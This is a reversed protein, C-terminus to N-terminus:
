LVNVFFFIVSFIDCVLCFFFMIIDLHVGNLKCTNKASFKEDNEKEDRSSAFHFHFLLVIAELVVILGSIVLQTILYVTFYPVKDSSKPMSDTIMTLFVAFTLFITMCFGMKEGSDIPVVFCCLNLVSLIVVPLLVSIVVYFSKRQLHIYFNLHEQTNRNVPDYYKDVRFSTNQIDWVENPQLYQLLLNSYEENFNLYESYSNINGFSLSCVHSDFPYSTVDIVCQSVSGLYKMYAVFGEAYVTVPDEKANFCKDNGIENFICISKPSWIKDAKMHVSTINNYLAPNWRLRYDTWSIAIWYSGSMTQQKENIDTIGVLNLTIMVAITTKSSEFPAIDPNVKYIVDNFLQQRNSAESRRIYTLCLTAFMLGLLSVEM